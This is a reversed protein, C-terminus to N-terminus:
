CRVVPEIADVAEGAPVGVMSNADPDDALAGVVRQEHVDHEDAGGPLLKGGEPRGIVDDVVGAPEGGVPEGRAHGGLRADIEADLVALDDDEAGLVGALHLLGDERDHVVQHRLAAHERHVARGRGVASEPREETRNPREPVPLVVRDASGFRSRMPSSSCQQDSEPMKLM